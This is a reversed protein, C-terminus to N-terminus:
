ANLDLWRELSGVGKRLPLEQGPSRTQRTNTNCKAKRDTRSRKLPRLPFSVPLENSTATSAM